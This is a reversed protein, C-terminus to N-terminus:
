FHSSALRPFLIVQLGQGECLGRQRCGPSFPFSSMVRGPLIFKVASPLIVCSHTSRVKEKLAKLAAQEEKKKQLFEKDTEDLESQQSKPKKLPKAKGGAKGSM